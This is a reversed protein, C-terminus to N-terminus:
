PQRIHGPEFDQFLHPRVGREGVDGPTVPLSNDGLFIRLDV